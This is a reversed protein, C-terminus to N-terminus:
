TKNTIYHRRPKRDLKRAGPRRANARKQPQCGNNGNAATEARSERAEGARETVFIVTPSLFKEAVSVFGNGRSLTLSEGGIQRLSLKTDVSHVLSCM